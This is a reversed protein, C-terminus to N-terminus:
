SAESFAAVAWVTAAVVVRAVVPTTGVAVAVVGVVVGTGVGAAAMTAGRCGEAWEVKTAELPTLVVVGSLTAASDTEAYLSADM